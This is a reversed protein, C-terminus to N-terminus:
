SWSVKVYEECVFICCVHHRFIIYRSLLSVSLWSHYFLLLMGQYTRSFLTCWHRRTDSGWESPGQCVGRSQKRCCNQFGRRGVHTFEVTQLNITELSSESWFFNWFVWYLKVHLSIYISFNQASLYILGSLEVFIEKM